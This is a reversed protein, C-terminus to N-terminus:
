KSDDDTEEAELKEIEDSEEETIRGSLVEHQTRRTKGYLIDDISILSDFYLDEYPEITETKIALIERRLGAPCLEHNAMYELETDAYALAFPIPIGALGGILRKHRGKLKKIYMGIQRKIKKAVGESIQRRYEEDGYSM